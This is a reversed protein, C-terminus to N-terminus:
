VIAADEVSLEYLEHPAIDQGHPWEIGSGDPLVRVLRFYAPQKLEGFWSGSMYPSVDFLRIEGTEYCLRLCHDGDAQASLIRSRTM